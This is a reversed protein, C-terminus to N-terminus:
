YNERDDDEEEKGEYYDSRIFDMVLVWITKLVVFIMVGIGSIVIVIDLIQSM